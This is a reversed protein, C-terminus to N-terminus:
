EKPRPRSKYHKEKFEDVAQETTFRKGAVETITLRDTDAAWYITRLPVQGYTAADKFTILKNGDKDVM